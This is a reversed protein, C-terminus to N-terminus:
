MDTQESKHAPAFSSRFPSPHWKSLKSYKLDHELRHLYRFKYQPHYVCPSFIHPIALLNEQGLEQAVGGRVYELEAAAHPGNLRHASTHNALLTNRQM